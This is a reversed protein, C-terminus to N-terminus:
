PSNLLSRHKNLGRHSGGFVVSGAPFPLSFLCPFGHRCRCPNSFAVWMNSSNALIKLLIQLSMEQPHPFASVTTMTHVPLFVFFAITPETM